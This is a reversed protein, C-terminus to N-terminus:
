ADYANDEIDQINIKIDQFHYQVEMLCDDKYMIKLYFPYEEINEGRTPWFLDLAIQKYRGYVGSKWLGYVKEYDEIKPNVHTDFYQNLNMFEDVVVKFIQLAENVNTFYTRIFDPDFRYKVECMYRGMFSVDFLIENKEIMPSSTAWHMEFVLNNHFRYMDRKWNAFVKDYAEIKSNVKSDFHENLYRFETVIQTFLSLFHDITMM